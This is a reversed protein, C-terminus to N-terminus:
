VGDDLINNLCRKGIKTEGKHATENVYGRLVVNLYRENSM